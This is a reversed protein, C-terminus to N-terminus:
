GRIREAILRRATGAEPLLPFLPYSHQMARAEHYEVEVGAERARGALARADTVLLDHSGAVVTIPALGRLDGFLPSVLPDRLDLGGAYCRGSERLGEIGLIRDHPEIERHGPDGVSADLWPSILVVQAPQIGNRDRLRQAVALAIGGGASDGLLTLREGGAEALLSELLDTMAPVTREATSGPALPYIPVDVVAPADRALHGGLRWHHNTIEFTYSGGHFYCVRLPPAGDRPAVRYVTTDGVVRSEVSMRDALRRPPTFPAPQQVQSEIRARTREASSGARKMGSLRLAVNEVHAMLSM